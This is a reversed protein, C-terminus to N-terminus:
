VRLVGSGWLRLLKGERLAAARHQEGGSLLVRGHLRCLGPGERGERERLVDRQLM